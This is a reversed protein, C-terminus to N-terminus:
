EKNVVKIGLLALADDDVSSPCENMLDTASQIKPFAVVDRINNTGALIMAIRELIHLHVM